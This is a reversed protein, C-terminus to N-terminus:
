VWKLLFLTLDEETNFCINPSGNPSLWGNHERALQEIFDWTLQRHQQNSNIAYFREFQQETLPYEIM